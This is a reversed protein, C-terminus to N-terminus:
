IHVKDDGADGLASGLSVTAGSRLRPRSTTQAPAAAVAAVAGAALLLATVLVRIRNAITM